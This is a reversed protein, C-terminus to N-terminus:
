KSKKKIMKHLLDASMCYLPKSYLLPPIALPLDESFQVDQVIIKKKRPTPKCLLYLAYRSSSVLKKTKKASTDIDCFTFRVVVSDKSKHRKLWSILNTYTKRPLLTEWHGELLQSLIEQKYADLSGM